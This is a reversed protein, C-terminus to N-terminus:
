SCYTLRQHIGNNLTLVIAVTFTISTGFYIPVASTVSASHFVLTGYSTLLFSKKITLKIASKKSIM